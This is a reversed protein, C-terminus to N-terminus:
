FNQFHFSSPSHFRLYFANKMVKLPSETIKFQLLVLPAGKIKALKPYLLIIIFQINQPIM